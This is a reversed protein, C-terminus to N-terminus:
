PPSNWWIKAACKKEISYCYIDTVINCRMLHPRYAVGWFRFTEAYFNFKRGLPRFLPFQAWPGRSPIELCCIAVLSIQNIMYLPLFFFNLFIESIEWPRGEKLILKVEFWHFLVQMINVSVLYKPFTTNNMIWAMKTKICLILLSFFMLNANKAIHGFINFILIAFMM